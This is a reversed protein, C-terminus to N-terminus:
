EHSGGKQRLKLLGRRLHNKVSGIPIRMANAIDSHSMGKFFSLLMAQRQAESLQGLQERIFESNGFTAAQSEDGLPREESLMAILDSHRRLSRYRDLAASRAIYTLWSVVEGRDPRYNAAIRWVKIFTDQVVERRDEGPPLIREVVRYVRDCFIDYLDRMAEESGAGRAAVRRVLERHHSLTADDFLPM